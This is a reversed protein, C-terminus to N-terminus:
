TSGRAQRWLASLLAKEAVERGQNLKHHALVDARIRSLETANLRLVNGSITLSLELPVEQWPEQVLRKLVGVM